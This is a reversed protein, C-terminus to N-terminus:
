VFVQGNIKQVLCKITIIISLTNAKSVFLEILTLQPLKATRFKQLILRQLYTFTILHHKSLRASVYVYTYHSFKCSEFTHVIATIKAFTNFCCISWMKLLQEM